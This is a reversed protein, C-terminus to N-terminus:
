GHTGPFRKTDREIFAVTKLTDPVNVLSVTNKKFSWWDQLRPSFSAMVSFATGTANIMVDNAAIVKLSNETQNSCRKALNRVRQLGVVRARGTNEARVQGARCPGRQGPRRTVGDTNRDRLPTQKAIRVDHFQRVPNDGIKAL